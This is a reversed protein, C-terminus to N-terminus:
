SCGGAAQLTNTSLAMVSVGEGKVYLAIGSWAEGYSALWVGPAALRASYIPPFAPPLEIPIFLGPGALLALRPSGVKGYDILMGGDPTPSLLTMDTKAEYWTSVQGTRLDLRYVKSSNAPHGPPDLAWATGGAVMVWYHGGDVLRVRGTHPDLLWLGPVPQIVGYNPASLYIGESAYDVVQWRSVPTPGETSLILRRNGTKADVLYFAGPSDSTEIHLM